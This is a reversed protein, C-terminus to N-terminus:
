EEIAGTWKRIIDIVPQWDSQRWAHNMGSDDDWRENECDIQMEAAFAVGSEEDYACSKATLHGGCEPCEAVDRPIVISNTFRLPGDPMPNM